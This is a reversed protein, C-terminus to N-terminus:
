LLPNASPGNGPLDPWAGNNWYNPETTVEFYNDQGSQWDGIQRGVKMSLNRLGPILKSHGLSESSQQHHDEFPIAHGDVMHGDETPLVMRQQPMKWQVESEMGKLTELALSYTHSNQNPSASVAALLQSATDFMTTRDGVGVNGEEPRVTGTFDQGLLGNRLHQLGSWYSSLSSFTSHPLTSFQGSGAVGFNGSRCNALSPQDALRLVQQPRAFSALDIQDGQNPLSYFVPGSPSVPLFEAQLCNSSQGSLNGAAALESQHDSCPPESVREKARKNKRCGGGVPVNRLAGGKTWYRRCSKCFHRPQTLSYNNYYCFKTNVSDCRPCKLTQENPSKLRRDILSHPPSLMDEPFNLRRDQM